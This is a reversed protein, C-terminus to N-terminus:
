MESLSLWRTSLISFWTFSSLIRVLKRPRATDVRTRVTELSPFVRVRTCFPVAGLPRLTLLVTTSSCYRGKLEPGARALVHHVHNPWALAVLVNVDLLATKV